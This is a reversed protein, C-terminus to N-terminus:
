GKRYKTESLCNNQNEITEAKTGNFNHNINAPEPLVIQMQLQNHKKMQYRNVLLLALAILAFFM